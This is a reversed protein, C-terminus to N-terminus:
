GTYHHATYPSGELALYDGQNPVQDFRGISVWSHRFLTKVELEFFSNDWYCRPDLSLNQSLRGDGRTANSSKGGPGPM